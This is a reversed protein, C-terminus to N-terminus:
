ELCEVLLTFDIKKREREREKVARGISFDGVERSNRGRTLLDKLTAAPAPASTAGQTM